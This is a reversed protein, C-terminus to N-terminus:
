FDTGDHLGCGEDNSENAVCKSCRALSFRDREEVIHEQGDRRIM